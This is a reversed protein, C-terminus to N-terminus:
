DQLFKVQICKWSCIKSTPPCSVQREPQVTMSRTVKFSVSGQVETKMDTFYLNLQPKLHQEVGLDTARAHVELVQCWPCPSPASHLLNLGILTVVRVATTLAAALVHTEQACAGM